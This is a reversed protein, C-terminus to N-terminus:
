FAIGLNVFGFAGSFDTEAFPEGLYSIEPNTFDAQYGVGAALVLPELNFELAISAIGLVTDDIELDQAAESYAGQYNFHDRREYYDPDDEVSLSMYRAGVEGRFAIGSFLEGRLLLSAGYTVGTLDTVYPTRFGDEWNLTLAQWGAGVWLGLARDSNWLVFGIEGMIGTEDWYEETPRIGGARFEIGGPSTFSSEASAILSVSALFVALLKKM